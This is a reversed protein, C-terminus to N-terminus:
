SLQGRSRSPLVHGFFPFFLLLKDIDRIELITIWVGKLTHPERFIPSMLIDAIDINEAKQRLSPMQLM